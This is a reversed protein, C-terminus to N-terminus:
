KRPLTQCVQVTSHSASSLQAARCEITTGLAFTRTHAASLTGGAALLCPLVVIVCCLISTASGIQLAEQCLFSQRGALASFADLAEMTDPDDALGLEQEQNPDPEPRAEPEAATLRAIQEAEEKLQARTKRM